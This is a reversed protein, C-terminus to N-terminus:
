YYKSLDVTGTGSTSVTNADVIIEYHPVNVISKKDLENHITELNYHIIGLVNIVLQLGGELGKAQTQELKLYKRM